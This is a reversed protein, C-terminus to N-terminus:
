EGELSGFYNNLFLYLEENSPNVLSVKLEKESIILLSPIELDKEEIILKEKVKKIENNNSIKIYDINNEDLINKIQVCNSCKNDTILILFTDNNNIKKIINSEGLQYKNRYIIIMLTIGIVLLLLICGIKKILSILEPDNM